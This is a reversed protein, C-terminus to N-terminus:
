ILNLFALPTFDSNNNALSHTDGSYVAIDLPFLSLDCCPSILSSFTDGFDM